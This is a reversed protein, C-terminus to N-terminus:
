AFRAPVRGPESAVVRTKRAPVSSFTLERPIETISEKQYVSKVSFM